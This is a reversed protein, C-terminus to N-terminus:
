IFLHNREEDTLVANNFLQEMVEENFDKEYYDSAWNILDEVNEPIYGLLYEKGGDNDEIVNEYWKGAANLYWTCFTTNDREDATLLDYMKKPMGQFMNEFFANNWEDAAFQNLENEHEFGKLVVGLDSFLVMFSDGSGDDMIYWQYGEEEGKTFMRLSDDDEPTLIEDLYTMVDLRHRLSKIDM